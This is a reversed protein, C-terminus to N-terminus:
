QSQQAKLATTSEGDVQRQDDGIEDDDYDEEQLPGVEEIYTDLKNVLPTWGHMEAVIRATEVITNDMRAFDDFIKSSFLNQTQDDLDLWGDQAEMHSRWFRMLKSELELQRRDDESQIVLPGPNEM